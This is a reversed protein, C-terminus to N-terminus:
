CCLERLCLMYPFCPLVPHALPRDRFLDVIYGTSQRSARRWRRKRATFVRLALPWPCILRAGPLCCGRIAACISPPHPLPLRVQSNPPVPGACAHWLELSVTGRASAQPLPLAEAEVEDEEEVTNLDIRTM